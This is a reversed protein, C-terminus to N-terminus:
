SISNVSHMFKNAVFKIKDGNEKLDASDDSNTHYCQTCIRYSQSSISAYFCARNHCQYVNEDTNLILQACNRCYTNSHANNRQRLTASCYCLQNM